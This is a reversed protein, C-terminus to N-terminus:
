LDFHTNYFSSYIKCYLKDITDKMQVEVALTIVVKTVSIYLFVRPWVLLSKNKLFGIPLEVNTDQCPIVYCNNKKIFKSLMFPQTLEQEPQTPTPPCWALTNAMQSSDGAGV